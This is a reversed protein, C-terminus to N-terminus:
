ETPPETPPKAVPVDLNKASFTFVKVLEAQLNESDTVNIFYGNAAKAVAALHKADKEKLNLGVFHVSHVCHKEEIMYKCAEFESVECKDAGGVIVIECNYAKKSKGYFDGEASYIGYSLCSRGKPRLGNVAMSLIGPNMWDIPTGLRYDSCDNKSLPSRDGYMRIGMNYGWDPSKAVQHMAEPLAKKLVEFRTEKGWKKNMVHSGDVVLMVNYEKIKQAFAPTCCMAFICFVLSIVVVMKNM